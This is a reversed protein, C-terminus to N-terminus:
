IWSFIIMIPKGSGFNFMYESMKPDSPTHRGSQLSSEFITYGICWTTVQVLEMKHQPADSWSTNSDLMTWKSYRFHEVKHMHLVHTNISLVHLKDFIYGEAVLFRYKLTFDLRAVLHLNGSGHFVSVAKWIFCGFELGFLLQKCPKRHWTWDHSFRRRAVGKFHSIKSNSCNFFMTRLNPQVSVVCVTSHTGKCYSEMVILGHVILTSVAGYNLCRAIIIRLHCSFIYNKSVTGDSLSKKEHGRAWTIDNLPKWTFALSKNLVIVHPILKAHLFMKINVRM